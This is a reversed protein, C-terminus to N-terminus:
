SRAKPGSDLRTGNEGVNAIRARSFRAMTGGGKSTKQEITKWLHSEKGECM